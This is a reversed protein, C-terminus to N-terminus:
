LKGIKRFHLYLMYILWTVLAWNEKSDWSWFAGWVENAWIAGFFIGLTSAPFAISICDYIGDELVRVHETDKSFLARIQILFALLCLTYSITYVMVHPFFWVSQLAPRFESVAESKMFCLGTLLITQAVMFFPIIWTNKRVFRMYLMIPGNLMAIFTLVQFMSVFPVYGILVYNNLVIMFNLLWSIGYFVLAIKGASCNKKYNIIYLIFSVFCFVVGAIILIKLIIGTM